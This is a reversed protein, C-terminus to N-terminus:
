PSSLAAKEALKKPFATTHTTAEAVNQLVNMHSFLEYSQFVMATKAPSRWDNPKALIHSIMSSTVSLIVGRM